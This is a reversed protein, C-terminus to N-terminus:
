IATAVVSSSRIRNKNKKTKISQPESEAKKDSDTSSTSQIVPRNLSLVQPSHAGRSSASKYSGSSSKSGRTYLTKLDSPPRIIGGANVPKESDTDEYSESSLENYGINENRSLKVIPKEDDFERNADDKSTSQPSENTSRSQESVDATSDSRSETDHFVADKFTELDKSSVDGLNDIKDTFDVLPKGKIPERTRYTRDYLRRKSTPNMLTENQSIKEISENSRLSKTSRNHWTRNSFKRIPDNDRYYLTYM